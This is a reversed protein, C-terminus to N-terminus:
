TGNGYLVNLDPNNAADVYYNFNFVGPYSDFAGIKGRNFGYTAFHRIASDCAGPIASSSGIDAYRKLYDAASFYFSGRLCHNAGSSTWQKIADGDTSLGLGPNFKRYFEANFIRPDILPDKSPTPLVADSLVMPREGDFQALAPVVLVLSLSALVATAYISKKVNCERNKLTVCEILALLFPM